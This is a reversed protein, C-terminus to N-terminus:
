DQLNEVVAKWRRMDQASADQLAFGIWHGYGDEADAVWIVEGALTLDAQWEELEAFINLVSGVPVAEPAWLRLGSVSVDVTECRLMRHEADPASGPEIVEVYIAREVFYRPHRRREDAVTAV